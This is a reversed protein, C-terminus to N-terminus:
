TKRCEAGIQVYIRVFLASLQNVPYNLDDVFKCLGISMATM